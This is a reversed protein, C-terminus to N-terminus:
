PSRNIMYITFKHNSMKVQKPIDIPNFLLSNSSIWAKTAESPLTEKHDDPVIHPLVDSRITEHQMIEDEKLPIKNSTLSPPKNGYVNFNM